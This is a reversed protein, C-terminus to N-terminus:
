RNSVNEESTLHPTMLDDFVEEFVTPSIKVNRRRKFPQSVVPSAEEAGEFSIEGGGKEQSSLIVSSQSTLRNTVQIVSFDTILTGM